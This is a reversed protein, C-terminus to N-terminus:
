VILPIDLYNTAVVFKYGLGPWSFTTELAPAGALASGFSLGLITV